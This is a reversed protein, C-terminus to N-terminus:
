AFNLLVPRVRRRSFCIMEMRQLVSFVCTQMNEGVARGFTNRCAHPLFIARQRYESYRDGMRRHSVM